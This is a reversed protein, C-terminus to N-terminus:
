FIAETPFNKQTCAQFLFQIRMLSANQAILEESFLPSSMLSFFLVVERFHSVQLKSSLVVCIGERLSVSKQVFHCPSALKTLM